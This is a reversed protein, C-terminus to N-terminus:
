SAKDVSVKNIRLQALLHDRGCERGVCLRVINVRWGFGGNQVHGIAERFQGFLRTKDAKIEINQGRVAITLGNYFTKLKDVFAKVKNNDVPVDRVIPVPPLLAQAEEYEARLETLKQIQVTTFLGLAGAAAWIIGAVILITQGANKPLAELFRNLDESSQPDALRKLSALNLAKLSDTNLGLSM